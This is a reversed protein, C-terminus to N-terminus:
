TLQQFVLNRSSRIAPNYELCRPRGTSFRVGFNSALIRFQVRRLGVSPEVCQLLRLSDLFSPTLWM